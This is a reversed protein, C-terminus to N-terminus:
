SGVRYNGTVLKQACMKVSIENSFRGDFSEIEPIKLLMSWLTEETDNLIHVQVKQFSEQLGLVGAVEEILFTKNSAYDLTVTINVKRSNTKM